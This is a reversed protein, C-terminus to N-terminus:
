SFPDKLGAAAWAMSSSPNFQAFFAIVDGEKALSRATEVAEDHTSCRVIPATCSRLWKENPADAEPYDPHIPPPLLVLHDAHSLSRAYRVGWRTLYPGFPEFVAIIRAKPYHSRLAEIGLRVGKPHKGGFDDFIRVGDRVGVPELRRSLHTVLSLGEAGEVPDTGLSVATMLALASNSATEPGILQVKAFVREGGPCDIAVETIGDGRSLTKAHFDRGWRWVETTAFQALTQARPSPGLIVRETANAVFEGIGAIAERLSINLHPHDEDLNTVVAVDPHVRRLTLDSDDVEAILPGDGLRTVGELFPAHVGLVSLPDGGSEMMAATALAAVTGKGHSGTVGAGNRTRFIQALLDTRHLLRGMSAAAQIEPDGSPAVSTAVLMVDDSLHDPDHNPFVTVGASELAAHVVAIGERDCGDVAAGLHEAVIAIPAMGRGAIGFLHYRHGQLNRPEAM